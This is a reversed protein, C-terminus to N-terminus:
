QLRLRGRRVRGSAPRRPVRHPRPLRGRVRRDSAGACRRAPRRSPAERWAQFREVLPGSGPLVADLEQHAAEFVEEPVRKPRVGYCREVEDEYAGEEGALKCAVTELGVLQARFWRARQPELGAADLEELLSVADAVLEAPDRPQESEAEAALEPPGFYADVLGDIHRGLRLGLSLYESVVDM